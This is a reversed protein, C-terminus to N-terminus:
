LITKNAFLSWPVLRHYIYTLGLREITGILERARLSPSSKKKVKKTATCFARGTSRVAWPPIKICPVFDIFHDNLREMRPIGSLHMNGKNQKENDVKDSVFNDANPAQMTQNEDSQNKGRHYKVLQAM